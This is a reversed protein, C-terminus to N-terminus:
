DLRKPTTSYNGPDTVYNEYAAGGSVERYWKDWMERLKEAQEPFADILNETEFRDKELDYLEWPRGDGSALKWNGSRVGRHNIFAFGMPDHGQREKGQFIPGLDLGDLPPIVSGEDRIERNQSALEMTKPNNGGYAPSPKGEFVATYDIGTLGVFTAMLDIIHAPQNTIRGPDKIGDPWRIICPTCIGGEHQYRKYWRLPTNGLWAREVGHEWGSKAGGPLIERKAMAEHSRDYPSAGNDSLFVIVTNGSEGLKDITRLVRGINQDMSDVMAAYVAMRLDEFDKEEDTLTDWDRVHDPREPVPWAPDVLGMEVQRRYRRQRLVNWGEAFRGRYKKIDEPLAQLPAHPANYALYLFFPSKPNNQREQEIFQIAYDTIANTAYFNEKPITFPKADLHWSPNGSFYNSSGSLHGFARDFGRFEPAGNLHWKGSMLTRYGAEKLVQGMTVGRRIGEGCRQAYMGSLLSGRSPTCKACNYFQTFRIGESAIRDINPTEIEGGMCGIDSYGLDDALIVVINPLRATLPASLRDDGFATSAASLGLASGAVFSSAKRLFNRRNM